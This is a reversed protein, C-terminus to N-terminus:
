SAAASFSVNLIPRHAEAKSDTSNKIKSHKLLDVDLSAAFSAASFCGASVDAPQLDSRGKEQKVTFFLDVEQSETVWTVAVKRIRSILTTVSYLHVDSGM